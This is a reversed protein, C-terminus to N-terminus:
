SVVWREDFATMKLRSFPEMVGYSMTICTQYPLANCVLRPSSSHTLWPLRFPYMRSFSRQTVRKWEVVSCTSVTSFGIIQINLHPDSALHSTETSTDNDALRVTAAINRTLNRPLWKACCM